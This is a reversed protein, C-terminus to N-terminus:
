NNLKISLVFLGTLEEIYSTLAYKNNIDINQPIPLEVIAIKHANKKNKCGKLENHFTTEFKITTM